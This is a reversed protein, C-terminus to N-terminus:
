DGSEFLKRTARLEEAIERADERASALDAAILDVARAMQDLTLGSAFYLFADAAARAPDETEDIRM